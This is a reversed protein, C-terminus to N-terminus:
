YTVLMPQCVEFNVTDSHLTSKLGTNSREYYLHAVAVPRLGNYTKGVKEQQSADM